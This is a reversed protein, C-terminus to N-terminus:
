RPSRSAFIQRRGELSWPRVIGTVESVAVVRAARGMTAAVAAAIVVAVNSPLGSLGLASAPLPAPAPQPPVSERPAVSEAPAVRAASAELKAELERVSRTLQALKQGMFGLVILVFTLAVAGLAVFGMPVSDAAALLSPSFMTSFVTIM